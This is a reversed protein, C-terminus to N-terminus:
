GDDETETKGGATQAGEEVRRDWELWDAKYKEFLEDSYGEPDPPIPIYESHYKYVMEVGVMEDALRKDIKLSNELAYVITNRTIKEAKGWPLGEYTLMLLRLLRFTESVIKDVKGDRLGGCKGLLIENLDVGTYLHLRILAETPIPRNGSEYSYYSRSTVGMMEAMETKKFGRERRFRALNVHPEFQLVSAIAEEHSQAEEQAQECQVQDELSPTSPFKFAMSDEM